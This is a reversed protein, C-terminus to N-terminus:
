PESVSRERVEKDIYSKAIQYSEEFRILNIRNRCTNRRVEPCQYYSDSLVFPLDHDICLPVKDVEYSGNLHIRTKWKQRGVTYYVIADHDKFPTVQSLDKARKLVRLRIYAACLLVLLITAWLPTPTSLIQISFDLATRSIALLGGGAIIVGAVVIGVITQRIDSFILKLWKTLTARLHM